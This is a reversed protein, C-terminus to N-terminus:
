MAGASWDILVRVDPLDPHTVVTAALDDNDESTVTRLFVQSESSGSEVSRLLGRSAAIAILRANAKRASSVRIMKTENTANM